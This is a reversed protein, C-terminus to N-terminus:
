IWTKGNKIFSITGKSVGFQKALDKGKVSPILSKIEAVKESTLSSKLLGTDVAHHTNQAHTMWELNEVRNDLKNGNKHNVTPLGDPNDLYTSAVVIHMQIQRGQGGSHLTMRLYGNHTLRGKIPRSSYGNYRNPTTFITGDSSVMYPWARGDAIAPRLGSTM